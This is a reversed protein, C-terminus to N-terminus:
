SHATSPEIHTIVEIIRKERSKMIVELKHAVEHAQNINMEPHVHVKLEVFYRGGYSRIRIDHVHDVGELSESIERILEEIKPITTDMLTLSAERLVKVGEYIILSGILAAIALDVIVTGFFAYAIISPLTALGVLSDARHHWADIRCLISGSQKSLKLSYRALGEKVASAAILVGLAMPIYAYELSYGQSSRIATEFVIYCAVGILAVGMILSGIDAAKGHGYPHERDPPRSAIKSSVLVIMSTFCDSMTHWSDAILAVSNVVFGAVLKIAWLAINIFVSVKAELREASRPNLQEEVIKAVM